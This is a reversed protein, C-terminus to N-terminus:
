HIFEKKVPKLDIYTDFNIVNEIPYMENGVEMEIDM